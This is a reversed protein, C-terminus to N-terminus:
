HQGLLVSGGLPSLKPTQLNEVNFDFYPGDSDKALQLVKVSEAFRTQWRIYAMGQPDKQLRELIQEAQLARTGDPAVYNGFALLNENWKDSSKLVKASFEM